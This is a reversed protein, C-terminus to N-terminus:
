KQNTTQHNFIKHILIMVRDIKKRYIFYLAIFPANIIVSIFSLPFIDYYSDIGALFGMVVYIFCFVACVVATIDAVRMSKLKGSIICFVNLGMFIISVILYVWLVYKILVGIGDCSWHHKGLFDFGILNGYLGDSVVPICLSIFMVFALFCAYGNIIYRQEKAKKNKSNEKEQQLKEETVREFVVNKSSKCFKCQPEAGDNLTGCACFWNFGNDAPYGNADPLLRKGAELDEKNFPKFIKNVTQKTKPEVVSNDLLLCQTIEVEVKNVNPKLLVVKSFEINLKDVEQFSIDTINEEEGFDSYCKVNLKFAKVNNDTKQFHLQLYRKELGNVQRIERRTIIVPYSIDYETYEYASILKDQLNESM